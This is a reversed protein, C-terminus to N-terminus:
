VHTSNRNCRCSQLGPCSGRDLQQPPFKKKENAIIQLYKGFTDAAEGHFIKNSTTCFTKGGFATFIPKLPADNKCNQSAFNCFHHAELFIIQRTAGFFSKKFLVVL